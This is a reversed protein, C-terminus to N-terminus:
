CVELSLNITNLDVENGINIIRVRISYYVPHSALLYDEIQKLIWDLKTLWSLFYYKLHFSKSLLLILFFVEFDYNSHSILANPDWLLVLPIEKLHVEPSFIFVAQANIFLRIPNTQVKALSKSLQKTSVENIIWLSLSASFEDQNQHDFFNDLM